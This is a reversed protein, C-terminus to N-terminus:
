TTPPWIILFIKLSFTFIILIIVLILADKKDLLTINYYLLEKGYKTIDWIDTWIPKKNVAKTTEFLVQMMPMLAIFSLTSFLAYLINYFINWVVHNKYPKVFPFIKKINNDM